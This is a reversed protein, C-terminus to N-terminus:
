WTAASTATASLVAPLIPRSVSASCFRLLNYDVRYYFMIFEEMHEFIGHNGIGHYCTRYEMREIAETHDGHVAFRVARQCGGGKIKDVKAIVNLWKAYVKQHRTNYRSKTKRSCGSWELFEHHVNLLLAEEVIEVNRSRKACSSGVEHDYAGSTLPPLDSETQPEEDFDFDLLTELNDLNPNGEEDSSLLFPDFDTQITITCEGFNVIANASRLFSSWFNVQEFEDVEPNIIFQGFYIEESTFVMLWEKIWWRERGYRDVWVMVIGGVFVVRADGGEGLDRGDYSLM